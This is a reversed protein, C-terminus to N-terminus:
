IIKKSNFHEYQKTNSEKERKLFLPYATILKYASNIVELVILYDVQEKTYRISVRRGNKQEWIKLFNYNKDYFKRLIYPVLEVFMCRYVCFLRKENHVNILISDQNDFDCQVGCIGIAAHNTCPFIDSSKYISDQTLSSIHWFTNEKGLTNRVDVVVPKGQFTLQNKIKSKYQAYMNELTNRM